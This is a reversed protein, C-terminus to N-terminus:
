INPTGSLVVLQKISNLLKTVAVPFIYCFMNFGSISFTINSRIRKWIM